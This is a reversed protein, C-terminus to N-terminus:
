GHSRIRAACLEAGEGKRTTRNERALEDCIEACREREAAVHEAILLRAERKIKEALESAERANM